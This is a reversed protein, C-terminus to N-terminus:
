VTQLRDVEYIYLGVNTRGLFINCVDYGSIRSIFTLEAIMM